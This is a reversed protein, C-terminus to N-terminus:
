RQRLHRCRAGHWRARHRLCLARRLQARQRRGRQRHRVDHTDYQLRIVSRSYDTVNVDQLRSATSPPPPRPARCTTRSSAPSMPQRRRRPHHSELHGRRDPVRRQRREPPSTRSCWITPAPCCASCSTARREHRLDLEPSRTGVIEAAMPDGSSDIGRITVPAGDTGGKSISLQTNQQYAGQDALLLVEGGPGASQIFQNLNASRAPTRSRPDMVCAPATQRFTSRQWQSTRTPHRPALDPRLRSYQSDVTGARM